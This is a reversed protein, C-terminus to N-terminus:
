FGSFLALMGLIAGAAVVGLVYLTGLALEGCSPGQGATKCGAMLLLVIAWCGRRTEKAGM